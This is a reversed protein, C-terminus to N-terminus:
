NNKGIGWRIRKGREEKKIKKIRHRRGTDQRKKINYIWFSRGLM